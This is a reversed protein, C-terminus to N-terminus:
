NDSTNTSSMQRRVFVYEKQLNKTYSRAGPRVTKPSRSKTGMAMSAMPLMTGMTSATSM